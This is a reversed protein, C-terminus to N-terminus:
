IDTKHGVPAMLQDSTMGYRRERNQYELIAAWFDPKQIDPWFVPTFYFETYACQWLLFNSLRQEGSTRILLDPDPYAHTELESTVTSEDITEPNLRGQQAKIAIRRMAETIEWRASYNLALVLTMGSNHATNKIGEQLAQFSAQPLASIEGIAQLKINNDNLTKVEQGITEVLLSMLANVEQEPRNWNETSFAYLTLYQIGIEAAAETCARVAKVGNHHGFIRPMGQGQAWRGNGDMIIAVHRPLKSLDIQSKLDM